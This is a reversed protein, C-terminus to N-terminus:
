TFEFLDEVANVTKLILALFYSSWVAQLPLRLMDLIRRYIIKNIRRPRTCRHVDLEDYLFGPLGLTLETTQWSGKCSVIGYM